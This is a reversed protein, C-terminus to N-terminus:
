AVRFAVRGRFECRDPRRQHLTYMHDPTFLWLPVDCIAALNLGVQHYGLGILESCIYRDDSDLLPVLWELKGVIKLGIGLLQGFDYGHGEADTKGLWALILGEGGERVRVHYADVILHRKDYESAKGVTVGGATMEWTADGRRFLVHSYRGGYRGFTFARIALSFAFGAWARVSWGWPVRSRVAWVQLEDPHANFLETQM